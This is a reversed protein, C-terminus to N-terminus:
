VKQDASMVGRSLSICIKHWLPMNIYVDAMSAHLPVVKKAFM